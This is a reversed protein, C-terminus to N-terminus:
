SSGYLWYHAIPQLWIISVALLSFKVIVRNSCKNRLLYGALFGFMLSGIYFLPFTVLLRVLMSVDLFWDLAGIYILFNVFAVGALAAAGGTLASCFFYNKKENRFISALSIIIWLGILLSILGSGHWFLYFDPEEM